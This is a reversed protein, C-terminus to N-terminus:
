GLEDRIVVRQAQAVLTVVSATASFLKLWDPVRHGSLSIVSQAAVAVALVATANIKVQM